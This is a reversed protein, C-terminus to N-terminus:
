LWYMYSWGRVSIWGLTPDKILQRSIDLVIEEVWYPLDYSNAFRHM